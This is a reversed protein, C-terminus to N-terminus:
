LADDIDKKLGEYTRDVDAKFEAWNASTRDQARDIKASLENRRVKLDAALQKSKADGKAELEAIRADITALKERNIRVFEDREAGLERQAQNLDRNAEAVDKREEQVDKMEERVDKQQDRVEERAEQVKEQAAPVDGEKKKCGVLAVSLLATSLFGARFVNKITTTMRQPLLLPPAM